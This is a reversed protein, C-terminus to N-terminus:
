RAPNAAFGYQAFIALAEPGALWAHFRLVAAEKPGATLAFAYIIPDHTAAPFEGVTRVGDVIAADTAYVIGLPAEGREVLALAARVNDARALRAEYRQWLGLATLAQRAYIGAPVHDPDGVAMRGSAGLCRELTTAVSAADPQCADDRAPAILVLRNVLLDTRTAVDIADKGILYDMWSVNASVFIDAPAGAEIQRAAQSSASFAFRVTEGTAARYRDGIATLADTLSAAALVTVGQAAASGGCIAVLMLVALCRAIRAVM